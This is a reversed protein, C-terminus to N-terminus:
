DNKSVSKIEDNLLDRVKPSREKIKIESQKLILENHKWAISNLLKIHEENSNTKNLTSITMFSMEFVRRNHLELLHYFQTAAIQTEGKFYTILGSNVVSHYNELSFVGFTLPEKSPNLLVKEFEDVDVLLLKCARNVRENFEQIKNKKEKRRQFYLSM